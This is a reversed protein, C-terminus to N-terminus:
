RASGNGFLQQVDITTRLYNCLPNNLNTFKSILKEHFWKWPFVSQLNIKRM